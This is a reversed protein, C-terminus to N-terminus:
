QQKITQGYNSTYAPNENEHKDFLMPWDPTKGQPLDKTARLNLDALKKAYVKWSWTM